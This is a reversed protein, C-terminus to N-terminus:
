GGLVGSFALVIIMTVAACGAAVMSAYMMYTLLKKAITIEWSRVVDGITEYSKDKDRDVRVKYYDIPDRSGEVFDITRFKLFGLVETTFVCDPDVRYDINKFHIYERVRIAYKCKEFRDLTKFRVRLMCFVLICTINNVM